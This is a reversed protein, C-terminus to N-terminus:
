GKAGEILRFYAFSVSLPPFDNFEDLTRTSVRTEGAFIDFVIDCIRDAAAKLRSSFPVSKRVAGRSMISDVVRSTFDHEPDIAPVARVLGDVAELESLHRRCEVCTEIHLQVQHRRGDDLENDLFASLNRRAPSCDM